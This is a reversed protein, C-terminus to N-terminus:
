KRLMREMEKQTVERVLVLRIGAELVEDRGDRIGQATPRSVVDPVIGVRQTPAKNPYFVGLGSIMSHVGGPLPIQSVNGDAGATASGVVKGGVARFAMTTYEAQSQSVEDVLIAVKGRYRPQEPHLSLEAGWRFAGPNALDASTFRAFPTVEQALLQGLAFVVFESPYNRIDIILGKTGAADDIYRRLDAAKITSLKIYAVEDSLRQFTDGPLDHRLASASADPALRIRATKVETEVGARSIKVRADGCPGATMQRAIDRFRAADNSDAYYPTWQDVLKALSTGDLETITDGRQLEPIADGLYGSVV